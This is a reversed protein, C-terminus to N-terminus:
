IGLLATTLLTVPATTSADSCGSDTYSYYWFYDNQNHNDEVATATATTTTPSSGGNNGVVRAQPLAVRGGTTAM